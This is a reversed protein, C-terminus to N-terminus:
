PVAIADLDGHLAQALQSRSTIGLKAFVKRLHYQVTRPSIFLRAGIQPNSLGDPGAARGPSGATLEIATRSTGSAARDGRDGATGARGARRVGHDGDRRADRAGHAAAGAGRRAAARPAAMRRVPPAGPGTARSGAHPGAARDVRPAAARGSATASCPASGPRSGWCGSPRRPAPANRCGTLRPRWSRGTAPGPRRRPWNRCSTPATDWRNASSRRGRPTVPPPAAGSATTCCRARTPRSASWGTRAPATAETSIAEILEAAAQERGQWAALMMATDAIPPHGVAEAILHDEEVLRAAAALDGALIHTRALYNLAFTLHMLAGTDRSFAVQSAALTRWSEFNWTEMAIIQGIRGGALWRWRASGSPVADLALVTELSRTLAPAAAAYGATVRLAVADLLVDVPRPPVPGPPATRAAEAVERVEPSAIDKAWIAAVLADLHAARAMGADAPELRRAASLLLRRADDGRRQDLAIQGRLLEVEAAQQADLPDAEVAVLLGLAADLAGSDCKARAATLLRQTRRAPDPTLLAAREMFAAAAALGGRAQARGASRELESAVEEDPGPAAGARHWARRDPDLRPDTVEALVRHVERRDQVSASRYAASRVLPHRFRVRPSFEALEAEVAPAGAQVPIGLRGAARWVLAVDGSPDAAALQLLRLADPPLAQLQRLFSEEIRGSLPRVGALGFGGALQAPTLGRPLELLALPNGRTEAVIQDRVRADLPGALASDLLARADDDPLGEVTLEPLGALETVPDRATLVLGVPDAALRRAVFGLAQASASDLWQHDDVLCLLPQEGAEESLLSLVALGVLFRDPAPGASLGFATRLAERQPEPLGDLRALMPVCLQHLGAFALEMESQVGLARVVRCGPAQGALYDLLATKGAGPEGRIVLVRSQGALVAEVLRALATLESARGRLPAHRGLPLPEASGTPVM